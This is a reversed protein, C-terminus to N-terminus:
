RGLRRGAAKLQAMNNDGIMRGSTATAVLGMQAVLDATMVAGRLDFSVPAGGGGGLADNPIIRGTGPPTFLEPGREGVLYTRGGTVPGGMARAGSLGSKLNTQISKGFVGVSGLSEFADLLSSLIGLLDGSQISRALEDFAREGTRATDLFSKSLLGSKVTATDLEQGVEDLQKQTDISVPALNLDPAQTIGPALKKDLGDSKSGLADLAQDYIDQPLGGRLFAARLQEAEQRLKERQAMDPLLSDVLAQLPDKEAKAVKSRGTRGGGEGEGGGGEGGESKKEPNLRKKILDFIGTDEGDVYGATATDAGLQSRAVVYGAGNGSLLSAVMRFRDGGRDIYGQFERIKENVGAFARILHEIQTVFNVIAGANEAINGAINTKLVTGLEELKHATKDANEIQEESLVLGLDDAAKRLENVRDIGGHLLPDLQQGAKGFLAVEIAAREAPSEIASLKTILDPLVEGADRLHGNGDKFSVGLKEFADTPKAAGDGAQGISRTLKQLGSDMEEQSVGTQQAVFRYQQLDETTVGLKKSVEELSAAYELGEHVAENVAELAFALGVAELAGELGELSEKVGEVEEQVGERFEHFKAKTEAMGTEFAASDLGLTVRLAGILASGAM